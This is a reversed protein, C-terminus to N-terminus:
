GAYSEATYFREATSPTLAHLCPAHMYSSGRTQGCVGRPAATICVWSRRPPNPFQHHEGQCVSEGASLVLRSELKAKLALWAKTAECEETGCCCCIQSQLEPSPIRSFNTLALTLDDITSAAHYLSSALPSDPTAPRYHSSDVQMQFPLSLSHPTM